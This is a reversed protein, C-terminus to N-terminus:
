NKKNNEAPPPPPNSKVSDVLRKVNDGAEEYAAKFSKYADVAEQLNISAEAGVVVPVGAVPTTMSGGVVTPTTLGTVSTGTGAPPGGEEM